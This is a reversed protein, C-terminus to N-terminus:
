RPTIQGLKARPNDLSSIARPVYKKADTLSVVLEGTDRAERLSDLLEAPPEADDPEDLLDRQAHLGALPRDVRERERSVNQGADDGRPDDLYGAMGELASVFGSWSLRATMM